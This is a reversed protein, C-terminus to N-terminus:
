LLGADHVLLALQTRNSLQLRALIRTLHAKVTAVSVHLTEAIQANTDGHGVALAVAHERPTLAALAGRARTHAGAEATTRELLRRTIAPALIPEGAAVRCVAEVIRAPPADKLLFGGAGARLAALVTDDADFTTLVIVEPTRGQAPVRRRRCAPRRARH